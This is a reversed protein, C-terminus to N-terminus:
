EDDSEKLKRELDKIEFQASQLGRIAGCVEKYEDYSKCGGSSLFSMRDEVQQQLKSVLLEMIKPNM